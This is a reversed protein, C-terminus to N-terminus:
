VAYLGVSLMGHTVQRAAPQRTSLRSPATLKRAPTIHKTGRHCTVAVASHYPHCPQCPQFAPVCPCAIPVEIRCRQRVLVARHISLATPRGAPCSAGPLGPLAVM